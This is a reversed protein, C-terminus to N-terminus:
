KCRTHSSDPSDRLAVPVEPLSMTNPETDVEGKRGSGCRQRKPNRDFPKAGDSSASISRKISPSPLVLDERSDFLSTTIQDTYTSHLSHGGRLITDPIVQEHRDDEPLPLELVRKWLEMLPYGNRWHRNPGSPKSGGEVVYHLDMASELWMLVQGSKTSKLQSTYERTVANVKKCPPRGDGPTHFFHILWWDLGKHSTVPLWLLTCYLVVYLLSELDDGLEHVHGPRCAAISMFAPTGKLFKNSGSALSRVSSVTLVHNRTIQKDIRCSSEWDILYGSRYGEGPVKYLIINGLSIDRHLIGAKYCADM